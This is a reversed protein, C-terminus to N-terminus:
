DNTFRRLSGDFTEDALAHYTRAIDRFVRENDKVADILKKVNENFEELDDINALLPSSKRLKDTQQLQRAFTQETPPNPPVDEQWAIAEPEALRGEPYRRLEEDQEDELLEEATYRRESCGTRAVNATTM